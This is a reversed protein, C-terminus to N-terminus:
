FSRWTKCRQLNDLMKQTENALQGIQESKLQNDNRLLELEPYVAKASSYSNFFSVLFIPVFIFVLGVSQLLAPFRFSIPTEAFSARGHNYIKQERKPM